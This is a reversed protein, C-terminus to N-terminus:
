IKKTLLDHRFKSPRLVFRKFYNISDIVMDEEIEDQNTNITLSISLSRM